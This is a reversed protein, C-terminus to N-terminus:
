NLNAKLMAIRKDAEAQTLQESFADQGYGDCALKRLLKTPCTMRM